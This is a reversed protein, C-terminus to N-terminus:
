RRIKSVFEAFKSVATRIRSLFKHGVISIASFVSLFSSPYITARILFITAVISSFVTLTWLALTLQFFVLPISHFLISRGAEVRPATEFVMGDLPNTFISSNLPLRFIDQFLLGIFVAALAPTLLMSLKLTAHPVNWGAVPGLLLGHPKESSADPKKIQIARVAISSVLFFTVLMALFPVAITRVQHELFKSSSRQNIYNLKSAERDWAEAFEDESMPKRADESYIVEKPVKSKYVPTLLSVVNVKFEDQMREDSYHSLSIDLKTIEYSNDRCYGEIKCYEFSSGFLDPFSPIFDDLETFWVKNFFVELIPAGETVDNIHYVLTSPFIRYIRPQLCDWNPEVVWEITDGQRSGWVERQKLLLSCINGTPFDAVRIIFYNSQPLLSSLDRGVIGDLDFSDAYELLSGLYWRRFDEETALDEEGLRDFARLVSATNFSAQMALREKFAVKMELYITFTALCAAWVLVIDRGIKRVLERSSSSSETNTM